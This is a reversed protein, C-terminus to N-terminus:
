RGSFAPKRKEIFATRGEVYDASAFCADVAVQAAALDRKDGIDREGARHVWVKSLDLGVLDDLVHRCGVHHLLDLFVQGCDADSGIQDALRKGIAFDIAREMGVARTKASARMHNM